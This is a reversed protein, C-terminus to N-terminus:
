LRAAIYQLLQAARADISYAPVARSHARSAMEQRLAEQPLFVEIQRALEAADIWMPVEQIEDYVSKVYETRAHLFFCGVAALEYTRTTDVDGPQRRGRIVVQQHIPAIVIRARRLYDGYSRGYMPGPFLWGRPLHSAHEQWGPGAVAVSVQRHHLQEALASMLEQYQPRWSAAVAVDIDQLPPPSDWLHVAPDYGHPVLVCENDYGYVSRWLSPHFPKTSAVLDYRGVSDQLRRGYAHPSYDPFVNVTFIGQLKAWEVLAGSVAEGKYVLMVEPKWDLCRNRIADELEARYLPALVRRAVRLSKRSHRPVYLDEGLDDIEVDSRRRLADQMSRASSGSWIEGM